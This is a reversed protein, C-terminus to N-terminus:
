AVTISAMASGPVTFVLSLAAMTFPIAVLSRRLILMPALHSVAMALCIMSLCALYALWAGRPLAAIVVIMALTLALKIRADLRHVLSDGEQYHDLVQIPSM